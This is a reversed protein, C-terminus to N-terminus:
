RKSEFYEATVKRGNHAVGRKDLERLGSETICMGRGTVSLAFPGGNNHQMLAPLEMKEIQATRCKCIDGLRGRAIPRKGLAELIMLGKKTMGWQDIQLDAAVTVCAEEWTQSPILQKQLVVQTGFGHIAMRPVTTYRAISDCAELPIPLTLEGTSVKNDLGAKIIRPLEERSAPAWEISNLFRSRFADFLDAPDTTAAVWCVDYCDVVVMDSDKGPTKLHMYGDDPEMPNLLAGRQLSEKLEHAEDFFVICPPLVFNAKKTKMPVVPTGMKACAASIQNFLDWTDQLGASHIFVFPIGITEAYCKVVFTKGQGPPSYIGFNLGRCSHNPRRYAASAFRHLIRSNGRNAGSVIIRNLPCAANNSALQANIENDTPRFPLEDNVDGLVETFFTRQKQIAGVTSEYM